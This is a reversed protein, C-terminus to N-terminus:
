SWFFSTCLKSVKQTNKCCRGLNTKSMSRAAPCPNTYIPNEKHFETRKSDESIRKYPSREFIEAVTASHCTVGIGRRWTGQFPFQMIEQWSDLKCVPSIHCLQSGMKVNKSPIHILCSCTLCEESSPFLCLHTIFDTKVCKLCTGIGPCICRCYWSAPCFYLLGARQNKQEGASNFYEERLTQSAQRTSTGLCELVRVRWWGGAELYSAIVVANEQTSDTMFAFAGKSITQLIDTRWLTFELM